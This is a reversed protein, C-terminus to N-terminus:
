ALVMGNLNSQLINQLTIDGTRNKKRMIRQSNLAKQPDM